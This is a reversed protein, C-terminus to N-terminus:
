RGTAAKLLERGRAKISTFDVPGADDGAEGEVWARRLYALHAEDSQETIRATLPRMIGQRVM